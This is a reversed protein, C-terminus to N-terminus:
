SSSGSAPCLCHWIIYYLMTRDAEPLAAPLINGFSGQDKLPRIRGGPSGISSGPPAPPVCPLPDYLRM